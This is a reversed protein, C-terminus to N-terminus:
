ILAHMVSRKGLTALTIKTQVHRTPTSSKNDRILEIQPDQIIIDSTLSKFTPNNGLLQSFTSSFIIENSSDIHPNVNLNSYKFPFVIHIRLPDPSTIIFGISQCESKLFDNVQFYGDMLQLDSVASVKQPENKLFLNPM